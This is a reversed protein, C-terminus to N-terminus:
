ASQTKYTKGIATKARSVAPTQNERNTLILSSRKKVKLQDITCPSSMIKVNRMLTKTSGTTNAQQSKMAWHIRTRMDSLDKGNLKNM